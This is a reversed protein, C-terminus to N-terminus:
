YTFLDCFLYELIRPILGKRVPDFQGTLTDDQPGLMTYTKGSGTQGYAFITGHYGELCNDTMPQGVHTFVDDQSCSTDGIADYTFIEGSSASSNGSPLVLQSGTMPPSLLVSQSIGFLEKRNIDSMGKQFAMSSPDGLVKLCSQLPAASSHANPSVNEVQLLQTPRIRLFIKISETSLSIPSDMSEGSVSSAM